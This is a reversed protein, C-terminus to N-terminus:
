IGIRLTALVSSVPDRRLEASSSVKGACVIVAEAGALAAHADVPNLLNAKRWHAGSGEFPQRARYTAILDRAGAAALAEVVHRGILGTGGLVVIRGSPLGGSGTQNAM